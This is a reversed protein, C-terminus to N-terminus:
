YLLFFFFVRICFIVFTFWYFDYSCIIKGQGHNGQLTLSFYGTYGSMESSWLYVDCFYKCFVVSTRRKSKWKKYEEEVSRKLQEKNQQPVQHSEYFNAVVRPFCEMRYSSWSHPTSQMLLTLINNCWTGCSM